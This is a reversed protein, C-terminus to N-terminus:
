APAIETASRIQPFVKNTVGTIRAVRDTFAPFDREPDTSLTIEGFREASLSWELRNGSRVSTAKALVSYLVYLDGISFISFYNIATPDNPPSDPTQTAFSAFDSERQEDIFALCGAVDDASAVLESWRLDLRDLGLLDQIRAVRECLQLCYRNDEPDITSTNLNFTFQLTPLSHSVLQLIAGPEIIYDLFRCMNLWTKVDHKGSTWAEDNGKFQFPIEASAPLTFDFLPHRFLFRLHEESIGPVGPSRLEGELVAAPSIGRRCILRCRRPKTPTITLTGTPIRHVPLEIGFRVESIALSTLCLPKLGLFGDVLEDASVAELTARGLFPSEGYGLTALEQRKREIYNQLALPGGVAQEIAARLAAGTAPLLTGLSLPLTLTMKNLKVASGAKLHERRLRELILKLPVGSLHILVANRTPGADSLVYIFAPKPDKALREAASLRLRCSRSGASLTKIQVHCSLPPPRNDLTFSGRQVADPGDLFEVIRDWDTRDLAPPNSILDAEACYADFLAEGKRGIMANDPRAEEYDLLVDHHTNL